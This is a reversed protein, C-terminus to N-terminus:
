RQRLRGLLGGVGLVGTAQRQRSAGPRPGGCGKTAVWRSGWAVGRRGLAACARCLCRPQARRRNAPSEGRPNPTSRSLCASATPASASNEAFRWASSITYRQEYSCKLNYVSNYKLIISELM